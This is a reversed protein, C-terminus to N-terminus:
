RQKPEDAPEPLLTRSGAAIHGNAFYWATGFTRALLEESPASAKNFSQNTRFECNRVLFRGPNQKGDLDRAQVLPREEDYTFISFRSDYMTTHYNLTDDSGDDLLLIAPLDKKGHGAITATVDANYLGRRNLLYGHCGEVSGRHRFQFINWAEVAYVHGKGARGGGAENRSSMRKQLFTHCLDVMGGMNILVVPSVYDYAILRGLGTLAFVTNSSGDTPKLDSASRLVLATDTKLDANTRLLKKLREDSDGGTWSILLPLNAWVQLNHYKTEEAAINAVGITGFGSNAAPESGMDIFLNEHLQDGAWTKRNARAQLLGIDGPTKTGRLIGLNKLTVGDTDSTEIVPKGKGTNGLLLTGLKFQSSRVAGELVVGTFNDGPGPGPVMVLPHALNYRRNLLSVHRVGGSALRLAKMIAPSWDYDEDNYRGQAFWEPRITPVLPHGAIRGPGEFIWAAPAADIGGFIEVTVGEAVRLRGGLPFRLTVSEPIRLPERVDAVRDIVIEAPRDGAEALSRALNLASAPVPNASVAALLLALIPQKMM